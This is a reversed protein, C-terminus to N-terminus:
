RRAAGRGGAAFSRRLQGDADSGCGLLRGPPGSRHRGSHRRGRDDDLASLRGVAHGSRLPPLSGRPVDDACVVCDPEYGQRKASASVIEMLARTYGTGSGVRLGMRRCAEVAPSVGAIVGSHEQLVREQVPLFEAYLTDIDAEEHPRGHAARWARGVTPMALIAAIHDRKAMGMPERAEAATIEVGKQRFVTQFAITPALSGHDVTTGAWDFVVATVHRLKSTM